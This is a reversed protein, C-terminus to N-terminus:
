LQNWVKNYKLISIYVSLDTNSDMNNDVWSPLSVWAPYHVGIEGSSLKTRFGLFWADKAEKNLLM